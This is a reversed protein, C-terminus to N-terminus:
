KFKPMCCNYSTIGNFYKTTRTYGQIYNGPKACGNWMHDTQFNVPQTYCSDYGTLLATGPATCRVQMSGLNNDGSVRNLASYYTFMPCNFVGGDNQSLLNAPETTEKVSDWNGKGGFVDQMSDLNRDSNVWMSLLLSNPQL